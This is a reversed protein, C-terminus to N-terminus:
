CGLFKKALPIIPKANHHWRALRALRTRVCETAADAPEHDLSRQLETVKTETSKIRPAVRNKLFGAILVKMELNASFSAQRSDDSRHRSVTGLSELQRLGQSVAGHSIQLRSRIQEITLPEPSAFLIGYIQGYSRPNGFLDALEEFIAVIGTQCKQISPPLPM